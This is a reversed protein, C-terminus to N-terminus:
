DTILSNWTDVYSNCAQIGLVTFITLIIITTIVIAYYITRKKVQLKQCLKFILIGSVITIIVGLLFLFFILIQTDDYAPAVGSPTNNPNTLDNTVNLLNFIM